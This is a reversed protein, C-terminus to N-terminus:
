IECLLFSIIAVMDEANKAKSFLLKLNEKIFSFDKFGYTV